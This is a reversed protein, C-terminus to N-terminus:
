GAVLPAWHVHPYVSTGQKWDHPMQVDFFVEKESAAQADDFQYAYLGDRFAGFTPAKAGTNRAVPDIRYDDWVTTIPTEDTEIREVRKRLKEFEQILTSM